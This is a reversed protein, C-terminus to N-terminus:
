YCNDLASDGFEINEFSIPLVMVKDDQKLVIGIRGNGYYWDRTFVYGEFSINGKTVASIKKMLEPWKQQVYADIKSQQDKNPIVAYWDGIELLVEAFSDAQLSFNYNAGVQFFSPRCYYDNVCEPNRLNRLNKSFASQSPSIERVRYSQCDVVYDGKLEDNEFYQLRGNVFTFIMNEASYSNKDQEMVKLTLPADDSSQHDQTEVSIMDVYKTIKYEHHDTVCIESVNWTNAAFIGLSLFACVFLAIGKMGDGM